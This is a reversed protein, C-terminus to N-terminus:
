QEAGLLVSLKGSLVKADTSPRGWLLRASHLALDAGPEPSSGLVMDQPMM